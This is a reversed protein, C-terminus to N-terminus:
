AILDVGLSGDTLTVDTAIIDGPGSYVHSFPDLPVAELANINETSTGFTRMVNFSTDWLHGGHYLFSSSGTGKDYVFIEGGDLFNQIPDVSFVIRDGSVMMADLNIFNLLKSNSPQTVNAVAKAIEQRTFIVNNSQDLVAGSVVQGTLPDFTVDGYVSYYSADSRNNPGWLELGDVDHVGQDFGPGPADIQNNNAWVGGRAVGPLEYFIDDDFTTSFVMAVTDAVLQHFYADGRNAMADVQGPTPYDVGDQTAGTGDWLLTQGPDPIGLTTKDANDSYEKGNVRTPSLPIKRPNIPPAILKFTKTIEELPIEDILKAEDGISAASDSEIFEDISLSFKTEFEAIEKSASFDFANNASIDISTDIFEDSISLNFNDM